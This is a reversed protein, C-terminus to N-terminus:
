GSGALRASFEAWYRGGDNTRLIGGDFDTIATDVAFGVKPTVFQFQWDMGAHRNLLRWSRGGDTTARLGSPVGGSVWGDRSNLFYRGWGYPTPQRLIRGHSWSLGGDATRFTTFFSQAGAVFSVPIVARLRGNFAAQGTTVQSVRSIPAPVTRRRWSWGGNRTVYPFHGFDTDTFDTGTYAIGTQVVAYGRGHMQFGLIALGHPPQPLRHWTRGSDFTRSIDVVGPLEGGIRCPCGSSLELWHVRRDVFDLSVAAIGGQPEPLSQLTFHWLAGRNSTRWLRVVAHGNKTRGRCTLAVWAQAPGVADFAMESGYRSCGDDLSKFSPPGVAAWVHGGDETRAVGHTTLAWGMQPSVVMHLQVILNVFPTKGDRQFVAANSSAIPWVTLM